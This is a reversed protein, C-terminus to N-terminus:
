KHRFARVLWLCSSNQAESSLSTQMFTTLMTEWLVVGSLFLISCVISITLYFWSPLSFFLVPVILFLSQHHAPYNMFPSHFLWALERSKLAALKPWSVASHPFQTILVLPRELWCLLLLGTELYTGAKETIVWIVPCKQMGENMGGPVEAEEHSNWSKIVIKLM